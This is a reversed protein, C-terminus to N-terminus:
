LLAWRKLAIICIINFIFALPIFIRFKTKSTKHNFVIMGLMAGLSAFIFSPAILAFESIRYKRHTAKYKDVGYMIFVIFNWIAVFINIYFILEM